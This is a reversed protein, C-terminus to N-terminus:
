VALFSMSSKKQLQKEKEETIVNFDDDEGEEGEEGEEEEEEDEEDDDDDEDNDNDDGKTETTEEILEKSYQNRHEIGEM